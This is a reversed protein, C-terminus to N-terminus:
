RLEVGGSILCIGDNFLDFWNIVKLFGILRVQLADISDSDVDKVTWESSSSSSPKTSAKSNPAKPNPEPVEDVVLGIGGRSTAVDTHLVEEYGDDKWYVKPMYSVIHGNPIHLKLSSGNRVSLEVTPIDGSQSFKIGKRGFKQDLIESPSSVVPTTPMSACAKLFSMSVLSSAM